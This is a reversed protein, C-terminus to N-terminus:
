FKYNFRAFLSRGYWDYQTAFAPVNGYRSGVGTSIFPPKEDLLNRIGVLVSWKPQDYLVSFTHTVQREATLDRTTNARGLYTFQDSLLYNRTGHVYDAFWTYTFDGRKLSTRLNGVIRPRGILGLNDASAFGSAVSSDFLQQADENTITAEGEIELKGISLDREYRSLVDYGRVKQQNVNVYSDRVNTIAFPATPDNAPNRDFLTCFQNPYVQAGYCGGLIGGAGIRDIQDLVEIAFYDVALSFNTSSPTLVFGATFARSTEPKLVGKGGGTVITASSAGGAYDQPIGAAACNQRVFDNSSEGWEICPDIALQSQFGTQNGLYLEYLGPARFSTGKTARLKLSPFVQWGMGIKWVHDTGPTSDYKFARASANFTLSDVLPKGALLPAEIEGFIETVHDKGRTVQASSAGWLDGNQSAESPQDDISFRRHEMGLASSVAGAPLTFLDGTLIGRLTTQEYTTHGTDWQGVADVLDQMRRGSLFDPDFYNVRPATDDYQVDGSRSAIIDLTSYAGKSRSYTLDTQWSWNDGLLGDFGTRVYYYDVKISQDSPFPMIPEAVGSPVPAVYNPSNAYRYPAPATRGGVIPFFQRYRHTDTKRTNYLFESSWNVNGFHFDAGAYVSKRDQRDIIQTSDYFDFNLVDEYFAQPNTATYNTNTRPRYGPILGITVGNPSPIYRRGTLADIVTNAYLNNCGALDTGKLISRDERDVRNGQADYMLDESCQFFDRDGVRLPESLFWEAAVSINGTEFNWGTAGGLTYSEGGGALPVRGSFSIEPSSINKRTILNVVGGVADSGYTSSGGDKLIEARQLITSPVVNLDFASVQGRTGAPGPRNGNLLVLTRNAGLGRLSVTQVGTGGEVVFGSFQNNIQTSGAAVSSAQLFEAADVQGVEVSKDATIIQVPSITNYEKRKLLSGTVTVRDLEAPKSTDAQTEAKQTDADTAPAQAQAFVAGGHLGIIVAATLPLLKLGRRAPNSKQM